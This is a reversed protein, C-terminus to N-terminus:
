WFKWWPTRSAPTKDPVAAKVIPPEEGVGEKLIDQTSALMKELPEPPEGEYSVVAGFDKTLACSVIMVCALDNMSSSWLMSICYNRGGALTLLGQDEGIIESADQYYIEFGFGERGNLIFPLFGSDEFRTYEPHLQLDFGLADISAQLASRDPVRSREIFAFQTNSM